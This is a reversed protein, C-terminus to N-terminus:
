TYINREIIASQESIKLKIKMDSQYGKILKNLKCIKEKIINKEKLFDDTM